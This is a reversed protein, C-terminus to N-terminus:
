VDEILSQAAEMIEEDSMGNDTEILRDLIRAYFIKRDDQKEIIKPITERLAGMRDLIEETHDPLMEDISRRLRAAFAPSKGSTTVAVTLDGRKVMSPMIFTCLQADDVVNVPKNLSKCLESIHKNLERDDTACIVFGAREVDSDEFARREVRIRKEDGEIDTDKAVVLFRMDFRKLSDLKERAVSGGGVILCCMDEVNMFFPFLVMTDGQKM